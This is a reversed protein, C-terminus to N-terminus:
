IVKKIFKFRLGGTRYEKSLTLHRRICSCSIKTAASAKSISQFEGFLEENRYVELSIAHPSNYERRLPKPSLPVFDERDFMAMYKPM